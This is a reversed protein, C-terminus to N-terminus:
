LVKKTIKKIEFFAQTQASYIGLLLLKARFSFYSGKPKFLAGQLWEQWNNASEWCNNAVKVCLFFKLRFHAIKPGNKGM